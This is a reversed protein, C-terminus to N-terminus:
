KSSKSKKALFLTLVLIVLALAASLELLTLDGEHAVVSRLFFVALVAVIVSLLNDKLDDLDDFTLWRPRPLSEDVFLVYLGLSIIYAVIAILYIDIAEILGVALVKASKPSFTGDRLIDVLASAVVVTEYAMLTISGVFTGVVAILVLYRGSALARRLVQLFM